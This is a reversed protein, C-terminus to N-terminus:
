SPFVSIAADLTGPLLGVTLDGGVLFSGQLQLSSGGIPVVRLSAFYPAPWVRQAATTPQLAELEFAEVLFVLQLSVLFFHRIRMRM